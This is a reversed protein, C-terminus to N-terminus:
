DYAHGGSFVIELMSFSGEDVQRFVKFYVMNLIGLFIMFRSFIMCCFLSERDMNLIGYM